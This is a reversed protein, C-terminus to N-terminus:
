NTLPSLKVDFAIMIEDGTRVTGFMFVPAEVGFDSMMIKKAGVCHLMQNESRKYSAEVQISKTIGAISLNGTCQITSANITADTLDFKIIKYTDTDLASYANKDMATHGSKLSESLISFTLAMLKSPTGDDTLEMEAKFRGASSTMTWDHLTSTGSITIRSDSTNRFNVQAEIPLAILLFIYISLSYRLDSLNLM